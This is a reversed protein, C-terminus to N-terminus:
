KVFKSLILNLANEGDEELTQRIEDMAKEWEPIINNVLVKGEHTIKIVPFESKTLFDRAFLRKLNRHLSSKEIQLIETLEKQTLGDMKSLVFLVNLQSNTINFPSLHQRFVNATLRNLRM